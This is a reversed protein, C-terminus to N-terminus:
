GRRSLDFGILKEGWTDVDMPDPGIIAFYPNNTGTTQTTPVPPTRLRYQTPKEKMTTLPPTM